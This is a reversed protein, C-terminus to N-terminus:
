GESEMQNIKVKNLDYATVSVFSLENCERCFLAARQTIKFDHIACYVDNRDLKKLINKSHCHPCLKVDNLRPFNKPQIIQTTAANSRSFSMDTLMGATNQDGLDESGDNKSEIRRVFQGDRIVLTYDAIKRVAPDHTVILLAKDPNSKMFEKFVVLINEASVSDVSATPEDAIVIAPDNAFAMAISLRQKEGGSMTSPRHNMRNELNVAALLSRVRDKRDKKKLNDAVIMPLEVNGSATLSPILNFSQFIIGIEDQLLKQIGEDRLKTIELGKIKVSGANPKEIGCLCNLLTTKGSGSPGMIVVLEGPFIKLDIGRVAMVEIKKQKFIKYIGKMEVIPLKPHSIANTKTKTEIKDIM